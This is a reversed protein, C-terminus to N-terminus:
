LSYELLWPLLYPYLQFALVVPVTFWYLIRM